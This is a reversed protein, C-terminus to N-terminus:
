ETNFNHFNHFNQVNNLETSPLPSFSSILLIPSLSPDSNPDWCKKSKKNNSNNDNCNNNDNNNNNDDDNNNSKNNCLRLDPSFPASTSKPISIPRFTRLPSLSSSERRTPPPSEKFFMPDEFVKAKKM